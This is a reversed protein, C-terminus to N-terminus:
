AINLTNNTSNTLKFLDEYSQSFSLYDAHVPYTYKNYLANGSNKLLENTYGAYESLQSLTKLDLQRLM